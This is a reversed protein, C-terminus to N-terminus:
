CSSRKSIRIGTFKKNKRPIEKAKWKDRSNSFGFKSQKINEKLTSETKNNM